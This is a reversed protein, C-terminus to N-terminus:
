MSVGSDNNKGNERGRGVCLIYMWWSNKKRCILNSALVEPLEAVPM